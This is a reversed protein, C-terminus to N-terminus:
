RGQKSGLVSHRVIRDPVTDGHRLTFVTKRTMGLDVEVVFHSHDRAIRWARFAKPAGGGGGRGTVARAAAVVEAPPEATAALQSCTLCRRSPQTLDSTCVQRGCYGCAARHQACADKGCVPCAEVEDSAFIAVAEEACAARHEGCVLRRSADTRHLHRSCHVHGDVVCVAQHATCVSKSCSACRTVEDVGVPENTGGECYRVCATCLRRSGKPADPRSQQAHRNCVLRGCSGCAELCASCAPHDGGGEACVGEHTSCHEMRCSPCVRAHEECAPQEDIRCAAIGHDACFDEACVSCRTSCADCACHGEEHRCVVLETPPRGCHPCAVTWAATGALPRQAALQARRGHASQLDWEVRQVLVRAEVLQLPHVIAKVQHRRVEETRRREHLATITREEEPDSKDALVSAFYRDLRDLEKAVEKEAVAQRAAVREASKERLNGVLLQLLEEAERPPVQGADPIVDAAAPKVRRAELDQFLGAVDDTSRTGTSLDFVDSEVMAEEVAAGARLVIRAVLRGIPHAALGVKKQTATGDRVPVPSAVSPAVDQPEAAVPPPIMGLSLRGARTRIAEILHTLFPSGLVAIEADPSRELADLSLALRLSERGQFHAREAPPLKLERLDAGKDLLKVGALDCYREVFPRIRADALPDAEGAAPPAPAPRKARPKRKPARRTM